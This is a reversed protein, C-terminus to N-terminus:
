GRSVYAEPLRTQKRATIGAARDASRYRAGPQSLAAARLVFFNYWRGEMALRTLLRPRQYLNADTGSQGGPIDHRKISNRSHAHPRRM